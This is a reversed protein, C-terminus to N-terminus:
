RNLYLQGCRTVDQIHVGGEEVYVCSYYDGEHAGFNNQGGGPALPSATGKVYTYNERGKRKVLQVNNQGNKGSFDIFTFKMSEIPYGTVSDIDHHISRDDYFPNHHVRIVGGNEMNYEVIQAGFSLSYRNLESQTTRLYNSDVSVATTAKYQKSFARNFLKLGYEGTFVDIDRKGGPEIRSYYIDSVFEEVLKATLTTYGFRHADLLQNEIGAGSRVYRGTSGQLKKTPIGYWYDREKAMKAQAMFEGEAYNVWTNQMKGNKDPIPVVMVANQADWTMSMSHRFRSMHNKLEMPAALTFGGSQEAGEEYKATIKSWRQGVTHYKAPLSVTQDDTAMRVTYRHNLGVKRVSEIRVQYSPNGPSLYEGPKYWPVDLDITFPTGYLGPTGSLATQCIAPRTHAGRLQWTWEPADWEVESGIMKMMRTISMYETYNTSSFIRELRDNIAKPKLRLLSGLHNEETFNGSIWQERRILNRNEQVLAM